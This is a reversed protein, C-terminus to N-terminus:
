RHNGPKRASVIVYGAGEAEIFQELATLVKSSDGWTDPLALDKPGAAALVGLNRRIRAIVETLAWNVKRLRVYAFGAQSFASQLVDASSAGAVCLSQGILGDLDKPVPANLCFDSTGIRGGPKLVRFIEALASELSDFLCLSCECLAVDFSQAAFPLREAAACVFSTQDELRASRSAAEARQLINASFDCATVSAGSDAAVIRASNGIGCAVDLVSTKRSVLTTSALQRTLKPGGPHFSQGLLYEVIPLEYLESCCAGMAQASTSV